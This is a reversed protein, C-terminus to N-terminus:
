RFSPWVSSACFASDRECSRRRLERSRSWARIKPDECTSDSGCHSASRLLQVGGSSLSVVISRDESRRAWPIERRDRARATSGPAIARTTKIDYTSRPWSFIVAKCLGRFAHRAKALTVARITPVALRQRREFDPALRPRHRVQRPAIPEGGFLSSASM